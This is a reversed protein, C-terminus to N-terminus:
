EFQKVNLYFKFIINNHVFQDDCYWTPIFFYGAWVLGFAMQAGGDAVSSADSGSQALNRTQLISGFDDTTGRPVSPSKSVYWVILVPNLQYYVETIM